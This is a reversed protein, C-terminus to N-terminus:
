SCITPKYVDTVHQDSGIHHVFLTFHQTPLTFHMCLVCCGHVLLPYPYLLYSTWNSLHLLM